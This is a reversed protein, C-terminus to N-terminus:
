AHSVRVTYRDLLGRSHDRPMTVIQQRGSTEVDQRYDYLTAIRNLAWNRLADPFDEASWGATVEATFSDSPLLGDLEVRAFPQGFEINSPIFRYRGPELEETEGAADTRNLAELKFVPALPLVLPGFLSRAGEIRYRAEPWIVGTIQEGEQIAATRLVPLVKSQNADLDLDLGIFEALLDLPVIELGPASLRTIIM